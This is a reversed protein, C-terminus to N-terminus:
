KVPEPAIQSIWKIFREFAAQKEQYTNGPMKETIYFDLIYATSENPTYWRKIFNGVMGKTSELSIGNPPPTRITEVAQSLQVIKNEDYNPWKKAFERMLGETRSLLASNGPRKLFRVETQVQTLAVDHADVQPRLRADRTREPTINVGAERALRRSEKFAESDPQFTGSNNNFELIKGDRKVVEGAGTFGCQTKWFSRCLIELGSHSGLVQNTSDTSDALNRPLLLWKGDATHAYVYIGDPLADVRRALTSKDASVAHSKIRNLDLVKAKEAALKQANKKQNEPLTFHIFDDLDDGTLGLPPTEPELKPPNAKLIQIDKNSVKRGARVEARGIMELPVLCSTDTATEADNALSMSSLLILLCQRMSARLQNQFVFARM